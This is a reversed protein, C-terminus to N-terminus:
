VKSLRNGTNTDEDQTEKRMACFCPTHHYESIPHGQVVHEICQLLTALCNMKLSYYIHLDDKRDEIIDLDRLLALHKSITTRDFHFLDAIECACMEKKALIEVISLRVPHGLAKLVAAKERQLKAELDIVGRHPLLVM